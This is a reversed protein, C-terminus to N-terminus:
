RTSTSGEAKRTFVYGLRIGLYSNSFSYTDDNSLDNIGANSNVAIFLNNKFQFGATFNLGFELTQLDDESGTGFNIKASEGYAEIKGSLGFGLTPGFDFFFRNRKSYFMNLPIELYNLSTKVDAGNDHEIGGKQVYFLGPEFAWHIGTPMRISIGSYAGTHLDSSYSESYDDDSSYLASSIGGSVTFSSKPKQAQSSIVLIAFVIQLFIAKPKM